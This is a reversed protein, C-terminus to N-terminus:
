RAVSARLLPALAPWVVDLLLPQAAETPHIRDPQFWRGTDGAIPALLFPVLKADHRRAVRPFIAAFADAYTAGYNPPVQMGLLLVAAGAARAASAIADLNAETARLDLGRLADNGGLEVIVVRPTHRSLLADIRSRGGATTEGSVSANVVSWPPQQAQLREALLQVWGSGRGLGYEASLSDGLVLVTNASEDARAEPVPLSAAVGAGAVILTEVFRRRSKRFGSM